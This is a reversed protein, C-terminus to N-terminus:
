FKKKKNNYYANTFKIQEVKFTIKFKKRCCWIGPKGFTRDWSVIYMNSMNILHPKNAIVCVTM